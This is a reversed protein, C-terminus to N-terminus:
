KLKERLYNNARFLRTGVTHIPISLKEAAEQYTYDGFICLVYVSQFNQSMGYFAKLFKDDWIDGNKQNDALNYICELPILKNKPIRKIKTNNKKHQNIIMNIFIKWAWAHFDFPENFTNLKRYIHLLTDQVCDEADDGFHRKAYKILLHRENTAFDNFMKVKDSETM